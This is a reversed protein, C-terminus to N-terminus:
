FPWARMFLPLREQVSLPMAHMNSRAVRWCGPHRKVGTVVSGNLKPAIHQRRQFLALGLERRKRNSGQGLHWLGGPLRHERSQDIIQGLLPFGQHQHQVIVLLNGLGRDM